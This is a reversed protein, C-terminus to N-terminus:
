EDRGRTTIQIQYWNGLIRVEDCCIPHDEKDYCVREIIMLPLGPETELIQSEFFSAAGVSIMDNTWEVYLHYRERLYKYLSTIAPKERLIDPINKEAIYNTMICVPIGDACQVRQIRIAQEEKTLQLKRRILETNPCLDIYLGKTTVDYGRKKLSETVSNVHNYNQEAKGSLVITGRGQTIDIFKESELMHMAKRITTRSVEYESELESEIPMLSGAPYFGKEIRKRISDYVKQYALKGM